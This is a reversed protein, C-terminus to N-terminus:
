LCQKGVYAIVSLLSALDLSHCQQRVFTQITEKEGREKEKRIGKGRKIEETENKGEAKSRTNRRKKKM